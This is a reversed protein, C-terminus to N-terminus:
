PAPEEAKPPVVIIPIGLKRLQQLFGGRGSQSGEAQRELASLIKRRAGQEVQGSGLATRSVERLTDQAQLRPLMAIYTNLIMM